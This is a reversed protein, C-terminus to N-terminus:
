VLKAALYAGDMRSTSCQRCNGGSAANANPGCRYDCPERETHQLRSPMLMDASPWTHVAGPQCSSDESQLLPRLLWTNPRNARYGHGSAM